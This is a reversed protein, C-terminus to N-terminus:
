DVMAAVLRRLELSPLNMKQATEQASDRVPNGGYRLSLKPRAPARTNMVNMQNRCVPQRRKEYFMRAPTIATSQRHFIM